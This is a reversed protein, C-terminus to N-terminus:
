RRRSPVATYRIFSLCFEKDLQDILDYAENREFSRGDMQVRSWMAYVGNYEKNLLFSSQVVGWKDDFIERKINFLLTACEGMEELITQKGVFLKDYLKDSTQMAIASAIIGGGIMGWVSNITFANIAGIMGGITGAMLLSFLVRIM